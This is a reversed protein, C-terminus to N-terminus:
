IRGCCFQDSSLLIFLWTDVFNKSTAAKTYMDNEAIYNENFMHFIIKLYDDPDYAEANKSNTSYPNM